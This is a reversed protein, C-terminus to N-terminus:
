MNSTRTSQQYTFTIASNIALPLPCHLSIIDARSLEDLSDVYKGGIAEFQKDRNATSTSYIDFTSASASDWM